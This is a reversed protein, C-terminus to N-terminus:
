LLLGRQLDLVRDLPLPSGRVPACPKGTEDQLNLSGNGIASAAERIPFIGNKLYAVICPLFSESAASVAEAYIDPFSRNDDKPPGAPYQWTEHALNLFDIHDPLKAPFSLVTERASPAGSQKGPATSRYFHASDAFANAIRASLRRDKGAREPYSAVLAREILERLGLPPKECIGALIEQDWSSIDASRLKKLMLVDLIREFFPHALRGLTENQDRPLRTTRSIIYPHCFRDLVAHTMFGVSYAGLANIGKERRGARIDEADPPPDPLGMKLLHATFVGYSRRHLLAGYEVSVPRTMQGHYFIDPGQCGLIFAARYERSIKELAKDAVIGFAGELRRYIENLADEGFLTHLIQSPM